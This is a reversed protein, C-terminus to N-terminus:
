AILPSSAVARAMASSARARAGDDGSAWRCTRPSTSARRSRRRRARRARRRSARWRSAPPWTGRGAARRRSRACRGRRRPPPSSAPPAPAACPAGAIRARVHLAEALREGRRLGVVARGRGRVRPSSARAARARGSQRVGRLLHEGVAPEGRRGRDALRRGPRRRGRARVYSASSRTRADADAASWAPTTAPRSASPLARAPARLPRGTARRRGRPPACPSARGSPRPRGPADGDPEWPASASGRARRARRDLQAVGVGRSRRRVRRGSGPESANLAASRTASAESAPPPRSSISGQSSASRPSWSRAGM